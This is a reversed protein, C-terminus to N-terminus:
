RIIIARLLIGVVRGTSAYVFIKLPFSYQDDAIKLDIILKSEDYQLSVPIGIAPHNRKLILEALENAGITAEWDDAKNKCLFEGDHILWDKIGTKQGMAPGFVKNGLTHGGCIAHFHLMEHDPNIIWPFKGTFEVDNSKRGAYTQCHALDCFDFNDHRHIDKTMVSRSFIVLALAAMAELQEKKVKGYEAYAADYAYRFMDEWVILNIDKNDNIIELPLPYIREEGAYSVRFVVDKKASNIILRFQGEM